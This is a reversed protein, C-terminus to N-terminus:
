LYINTAVQMSHYKQLSQTTQMRQVPAKGAHGIRSARPSRDPETPCSPQLNDVSQSGDLLFHLHFWICLGRSCRSPSSHSFRIIMNVFWRGDELRGGSKKGNKDVHLWAANFTNGPAKIWAVITVSNCCDFFNIRADGSIDSSVHFVSSATTWVRRVNVVETNLNQIMGAVHELELHTKTIEDM